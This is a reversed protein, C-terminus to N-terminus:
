CEIVSSYESGAFTIKKTPSPNSSLAECKCLLREVSSGCRWDMKTQSHQLHFRVFEKGPSAQVMVQRIALIVPSLWQAQSINLNKKNPKKLCIRELCGLTEKFEGDEQEAEPISSNCAHVV